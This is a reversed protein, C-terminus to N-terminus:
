SWLSDGLEGPDLRRMEDRASKLELVESHEAEAQTKAKLVQGQSPLQQSLASVRHKWYVYHM